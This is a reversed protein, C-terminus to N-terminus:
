YGFYYRHAASLSDFVKGFGSKPEVCIRGSMCRTVKYGKAAFHARIRDIKM